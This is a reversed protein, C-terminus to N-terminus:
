LVEKTARIRLEGPTPVRVAELGKLKQIGHVNGVVVKMGGVDALPGMEKFLNDITSYHSLKSRILSMRHHNHSPIRRRNLEKRVSRRDGRYDWNTLDYLHFQGARRESVILDRVVWPLDISLDWDWTKTPSISQHWHGEGPDYIAKIQDLTHTITFSVHDDNPGTRGVVIVKGLEIWWHELVMRCYPEPEQDEHLLLRYELGPKLQCVQVKM